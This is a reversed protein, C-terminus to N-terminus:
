NYIFINTISYSFIFEVSFVRTINMTDNVLRSTLNSASNKLHFSYPLKIVKNWTVSRINQIIKQGIYGLI